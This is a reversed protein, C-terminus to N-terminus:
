LYSKAPRNLPKRPPALTRVAAPEIQEVLRQARRRVEADPSKRAQKLSPLASKGLQALRHTAQQRDRFHESGLQDIWRQIEKASAGSRPEDARVVPAIAAVAIILAL